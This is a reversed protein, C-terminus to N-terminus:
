ITIIFWTGKDIKSEVKVVAGNKDLFDKTIMLGIGAGGQNDKGEAKRAKYYSFLGKLANRTMGVGTDGIEIRIKEGMSNVRLFIKGGKKNYKIANSLINRMSSTLMDEDANIFVEDSYFERILEIEKLIIAQQFYDILRELVSIINIETKHPELQLLDKKSWNLLNELTLYASDASQSLTKMMVTLESKDFKDFNELTLKLFENFSGIGSRIDHSILSLFRSKVDNLQELEANKEKLQQNIDILQLDDEIHLKVQNLFDIYDQSYQNEKNDLLCVTGFVEGDPWNIPLGLYSIMNIDVDLNNDKWVPSKTADPVLLKNQTGIVTECYLGYVLKAEEGAKYPNGKTRSKIFVEITDENLKMILGAPVKAIKAAVDILSQWKNIISPAIEPKSVSSIKVKKKQGTERITINSYREAM